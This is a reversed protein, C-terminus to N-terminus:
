PCVLLLGANPVPRATGVFRIAWSQEAGCGATLQASGHPLLSTPDVYCWGNVEDGFLEVTVPEQLKTWCADRYGGVSTQPITCTCNWQETAYDPSQMIVEAVAPRLEDALRERGLDPCNCPLSAVHRAEVLLCSSSGQDDAPLPRSLCYKADLQARMREVVADVTPNYGFASAQEDDDGILTACASAVVAQTGLGHLVELQRLGPYAKAFYQTQGYDDSSSQCLPNGDYGAMCDCSSSPSSVTCDRPNELESICAYQLDASDSLSREHGNIPNALYGADPPEISAGCVPNTGGVRPEISEHMFPDTPLVNALPDGLIVSWRDQSSLESQSQYGGVARGEENTGTTLDPAHTSSNLRAIDQWPLGVVGVLLVMGKDRIVGTGTASDGSLLLPNPVYSGPEDEILTETLGLVYRSAPTLVDLGFRRKQDFCRLSVPDEEPSLVQACTPDAPCDSPASQGCSLCCRDTPNTACIQRARPLHYPAGNLINTAVLYSEGGEVFSCDNEDTLMVVVVISAPRVFAAREDLLAQDIGVLVAEGDHIEIHDYPTPDVLFRYWSELPAELGCGTEGVGGLLDNLENVLTDKDREGPPDLVQESDWALFAQGNYGYSQGSETRGLLHAGDNDHDISSTCTDAGHGGLSSSIIGIHMNAVPAFERRSGTPCDGAATKPQAATSVPVGDDGVCRPNVLREVLRPVALRLMKQKDAMSRSNDIDFLLDVATASTAHLWLTRGGADAGADEPAFSLDSFGALQYCGALAGLGLGLGLAIASGVLAGLRRQRARGLTM